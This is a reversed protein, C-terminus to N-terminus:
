RLRVVAGVSSFVNNFKRHDNGWYVMACAMPAGKASEVGNIMFKLRTDGLFSVSTASGFVFNKWHSTNTAVPILALVESNHVLNANHCLRLWDKISTKTEKDKGYPPNVFIKGYEWSEVIGIISLGV